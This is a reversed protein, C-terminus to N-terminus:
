PVPTFRHRALNSRRDNGDLRLSKPVRRPFVAEHDRDARGAAFRMPIRAGDARKAGALLDLPALRGAASRDVGEAHHAADLLGVDDSMHRKGFPRGHQGVEDIAIEIPQADALRDGHYELFGLVTRWRRHEPRDSPRRAIILLITCLMASAIAPMRSPETTSIPPNPLM